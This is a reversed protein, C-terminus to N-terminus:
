NNENSDPENKDISNPVFDRIWQESGANDLFQEFTYKAKMEPSLSDYASEFNHITEYMGRLDKPMGFTDFYSGQVQSLASVDGNCFREYLVNVDNLDADRNHLEVLDTKGVEVLNIIGYEDAEGIYEPKYRDGPNSVFVNPDYGVPYM